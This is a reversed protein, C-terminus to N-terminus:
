YYNEINMNPLIIQLFKIDSIQLQWRENLFSLFKLGREGISSPYWNGYNAVEKENEIGTSLGYIRNSNLQVFCRQKFNANFNNDNKKECLVLNGLTYKLKKKNEAGIRAGKKDEMFKQWNCRIDDTYITAISFKSVSYKFNSNLSLEYETLFYRIGLWDFFYHENNELIENKFMEINQCNKTKKAIEGEFTGLIFAQNKRTYVQNAKKYFFTRNQNSNHCSVLYVIFNHREIQKFISVLDIINEENYLHYLLSLILPEFFKGYSAPIRDLKENWIVLERAWEEKFSNNKFQEWYFVSQKM